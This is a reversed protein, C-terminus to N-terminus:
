PKRRPKATLLYPQLLYMFIEVGREIQKQISIEEDIESEILWQNNVLMGINIFMRFDGGNKPATLVGDTVYHHLLRELEQIRQQKAQRYHQKLEPDHTLLPVMERFFFRYNWVLSFNARLHTQMSELGHSGQQAKSWIESWGAIMQEVIARIIAEKNRYHYYLNGPSIGAADAIHNTSVAATGSKNFLDIATQLIHSKTDM